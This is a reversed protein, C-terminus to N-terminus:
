RTSAGGGTLGKEGEAALPDLGRGGGEGAGVVLGAGAAGPGAFLLGLALVAVVPAISRRKQRCQRVIGGQEGGRRSGRGTPTQSGGPFCSGGVAEGCATRCPRVSYGAQEALTGRALRGRLGADCM